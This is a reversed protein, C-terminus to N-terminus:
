GSGPLSVMPAIVLPSSKTLALALYRDCRGKECENEKDRLGSQIECVRISIILDPKPLRTCHPSGGKQLDSDLVQPYFSRPAGM